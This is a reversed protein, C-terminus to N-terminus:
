SHQTTNPTNHQTTNHEEYVSTNDQRTSHQRTNKMYDLLMSHMDELQDQTRLVDPLVFMSPHSVALPFTLKLILM